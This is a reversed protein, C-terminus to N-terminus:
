REDQLKKLIWVACCFNLLRKQRISWIFLSFFSPFIDPFKIWGVQVRKM